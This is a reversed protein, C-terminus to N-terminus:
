QDRHPRHSEFVSVQSSFCQSCTMVVEGCLVSGTKQSNRIWTHASPFSHLPSCCHEATISQAQKPSTLILAQMISDAVPFVTAACAGSHAGKHSLGLAQRTILLHGMGKHPDANALLGLQGAHLPLGEIRLPVFGQVEPSAM